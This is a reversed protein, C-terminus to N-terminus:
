KKVGRFFKKDSKIKSKTNNVSIETKIKKKIIRDQETEPKYWEINDIHCRYM